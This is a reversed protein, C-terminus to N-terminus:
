RIMAIVEKFTHIWKLIMLNIVMQTIAMIILCNRLNDIRESLLQYTTWFETKAMAVESKIVTDIYDLDHQDLPMKSVKRRLAEQDRKDASVKGIGKVPV